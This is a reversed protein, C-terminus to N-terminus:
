NRNFIIKVKIINHSSNLVQILGSNKSAIWVCGNSDPESLDLIDVADILEIDKFNDNEILYVGGSTSVLLNDNFYLMDTTNIKSTIHYDLNITAYLLSIPFLASLYLLINLIM